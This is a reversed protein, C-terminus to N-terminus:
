MAEQRVYVRYFRNSACLDAMGGSQVTVTHNTQLADVLITDQAWGTNVSNTLTQTMDDNIVFICGDKVATANRKAIYLDEKNATSLYTTTGGAYKRRADLLPDLLPKLPDGMWGTGKEDTDAYPADCYDQRFVCPHGESMLIFVYALEKDQEMGVKDGNDGGFPRIEDHSEVFTVARSSDVHILAGHSLEEMDFTGNRNCMYQLKEHLPFDFSCVRNDMLAIWTEHERVSAQEADAWYEGVAFKDQMLGFRMYEAFLWPEMGQTYDFRCGRYGVQAQLWNGNNKIGNRMYPHRENVDASDAAPYPDWANTGAPLGWGNDYQFPYNTYNVNFYGNTDAAVGTEKEFTRHSGYEYNYRYTTGGNMHNLVMDAICDIGKAAFANVCAKLQAESGYRTQVSDKQDYTGLDYYDYPDYGVSYVGSKGKQPPNMWVRDFRAFENSEAQQELREYWYIDAYGPLLTTTTGNTVAEVSYIQSGNNFRFRVLGSLTNSIIIDEADYDPPGGWEAFENTIPLIYDAQNNEGWQASWGGDAAFKFAVGSTPSTFDHIYEWTDDGIPTMNNLVPNWGNFSAAVTMSDYYCRLPRPVNWGFGQLMVESDDFLPTTKPAPAPNPSLYVKEGLLTTNATGFSGSVSNGYAEASLWQYTGNAGGLVIAAAQVFTTSTSTWASDLINSLPIAVEIGANALNTSYPTDGWQSIPSPGSDTFAPALNTAASGSLAYVGQGYEKGGIEATSDNQGDAYRSGVLIGVDPEFTGAQFHLNDAMSLGKPGTSIASLSSVGGTRTDLLILLADDGDQADQKSYGAVGVYLNTGDHNFYIGGHIRGFGNLSDSGAAYPLMRGASSVDFAEEGTDSGPPNTSIVSVVKFPAVIGPILPEPDRVNLIGDNDDDADETLSSAGSLSDPMGDGDTDTTAAADNPFADPGFVISNTGDPDFPGDSVGDGDSDGSSPSTNLVFQEYSSSYGDFDEDYDANGATYFRVDENPPFAGRGLQGSDIWQLQNTGTTVLGSDAQEWLGFGAGKYGCGDFSYIDIRNTFDVPWAVTVELQNSVMQFEIIEMENSGGSSMMAIGGGSGIGPTVAQLFSEQRAQDLLLEYLNESPVLKIWLALRAPDRHAIYDAIEEKSYEGSYLDPRCELAYVAPDCYELYPCPVSYIEKGDSNLFVIERPKEQDQYIYLDYVPVNGDWYGVLGQTLEEPFNKWDVPYPGVYHDWLDIGPLPPLGGFQFFALEDILADLGTMRHDLMLDDYRDAARSEATASVYYEAFSYLILSTLLLLVGVTFIRHKRWIRQLAKM